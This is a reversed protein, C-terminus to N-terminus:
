RSRRTLGSSMSAISEAIKGSESTRPVDATETSIVALAAASSAGLGCTIIRIGDAILPEAYQRPEHVGLDGDGFIALVRDGAPESMLDRHASSLTPRIDNGGTAQAQSLLRLADDASRAPAVSGAIDHHWLIMGVSYGDAVAEDIFQRCGRIADKLPSGSMSGSVDLALIVAGSLSAQLRLLNPGAQYETVPPSVFSKKTWGAM